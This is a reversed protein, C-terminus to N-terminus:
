RRDPGPEEEKLSLTAIVDVGSEGFDQLVRQGRTVPLPVRTRYLTDLLSNILEAPIAGATRVPVRPFRESGTPCTCTVMRKPALYEERGYEKGRACKNGTVTIEGEQESRVTLHCGLPCAICIIKKEATASM